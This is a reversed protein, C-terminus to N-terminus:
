VKELVLASVPRPQYASSEGAEHTAGFPRMRQLPWYDLLLLVCPFTIAMPKAMLALAFLFAVALYRKLDPRRAYRQYAWLGLLFFVTCLGHKRESIWAVSEVNIPHAAFLAAVVASRGALGTASELLLFLLVVCLAHLLVSDYHHGAAKLHFLQYDLAHSLWTLTHWNAQETSWFAWHVTQWTLGTRIHPNGTVYGPDDFNVFGYQTVPNYLLLALLALLLSLVVRRQKPSSFLDTGTPRRAEVNVAVTAM